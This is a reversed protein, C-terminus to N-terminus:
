WPHKNPWLMSLPPKAGDLWVTVKLHGELSALTAHYFISRLMAGIRSIKGYKPVYKKDIFGGHVDGVL